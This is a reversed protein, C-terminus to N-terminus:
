KPIIQRSENQLSLWNHYSYFKTWIPRVYQVEHWLECYAMHLFGLGVNLLIEIVKGTIPYPEPKYNM